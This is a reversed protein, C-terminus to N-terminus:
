SIMALFRETLIIMVMRAKRDTGKIISSSEIEKDMPRFGCSRGDTLGDYVLMMAFVALMSAMLPPM